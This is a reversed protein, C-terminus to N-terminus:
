RIGEAVIWRGGRFLAIAVFRNWKRRRVGSRQRDGSDRDACLAVGRRSAQGPRACGAAMMGPSGHRVDRAIARFSVRGGAGNPVIHMPTAEADCGFWGRWWYWCHVLAGPLSRASTKGWKGIKMGIMSSGLAIWILAVAAALLPPPQRWHERIGPGAALMKMHLATTPLTRRECGTLGRVSIPATSRFRAAVSLTGGRWPVEVLAAVAITLPVVFFVAAFAV